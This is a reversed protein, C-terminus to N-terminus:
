AAESLIRAARPPLTIDATKRLEDGVAQPGDGRANAKEILGTLNRRWEVFDGWFVVGHVAPFGPTRFWGRAASYSIGALVAFEKTNLAQDLRRKQLVDDLKIDRLQKDRLVLGFTAGTAVCERRRFKRRRPIADVEHAKLEMLRVRSPFAFLERENGKGTPLARNMGDPPLSAAVPPAFVEPNM